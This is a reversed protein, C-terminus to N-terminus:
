CRRAIRRPWRSSSRFNSSVGFAPDDGGHFARSHRDTGADRFRNDCRRLHRDRRRLYGAARSAAHGAPDHAVPELRPHECCGGDGSSVVDLAATTFIFVYPYAYITGPVFVIGAFTYVNFPGSGGGMLAIWPRNLWGVGPAALLIWAIGGLYSPTIFTAIVSLRVLGKCPMDTRSVAWAIPVAFIICLAASTRDRCFSNLLAHLRRENAFAVGYNTLTFGEGGAM